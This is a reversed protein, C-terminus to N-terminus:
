ELYGLARLAEEVESSYAQTMEAGEPPEAAIGYTVTVSRRGGSGKLLVHKKGDLTPEAESTRKQTALVEGTDADIFRLTLGSLDSVNGAPRAYVERNGKAGKAFTVRAAGDVTTEVSATARSMPDVGLWTDVFGADSSLEITLASKPKRSASGVDLRLVPGSWTDLGQGLRAHWMSTDAGTKVLDSQETPDKSLDFLSEAGARTTWKQDDLVVGWLEKGYLLRGVAQPRSELAAAAKTDGNAVPLLSRGAMDQAPLGALDLVTSAIDLLSVPATVRGAPVGPGRVILPVRLLEDYISHGHEFDGHDWFEEGHDAFLIVPASPGLKDLLDGLQDDL